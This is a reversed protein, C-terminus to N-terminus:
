EFLLRLWQDAECRRVPFARLPRGPLWSVQRRGSAWLGEHFPTPECANM